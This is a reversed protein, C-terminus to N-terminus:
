RGPVTMAVPAFAIPVATLPAGARGAVGPRSVTRVSSARRPSARAHPRLVGGPPVTFCPWPMEFGVNARMGHFFTGDDLRGSSWLWSVAM